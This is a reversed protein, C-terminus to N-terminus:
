HSLHLRAHEENFPVHVGSPSPLAGNDARGTSWTPSGPTSGQRLVGCLSYQLVGPWVTPNELSSTPKWFGGAPHTPGRFAVACHAGQLGSCGGGPSREYGGCVKITPCFCRRGLAPRLFVWQQWPPTGLSGQLYVQAWAQSGPAEEGMLLAIGSPPPSKPDHSPM